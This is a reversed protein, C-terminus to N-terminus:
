ESEGVVQLGRLLIRAEPMESGDEDRVSLRDGTTPHYMGTALPYLGSQTNTPVTLRYRDVVIEGPRWSSTSHRGGRPEVDQQELIEGEQSLLHTFVKYDRQMRGRCRWYLKLSVEQGPQAVVPDLDYGLLEVTEGLKFSSPGRVLRELAVPQMVHISGLELTEGVSQGARADYVGIVVDYEGPPLDWPLPVLHREFVPMFSLPTDAQAVKLGQQNLIHIYATLERETSSLRRWYLVLDLPDGATRDRGRAFHGHTLVVDDGFTADLCLFDDTLPRTTTAGPQQLEVIQATEVTKSVGRFSVDLTAPWNSPSSLPLPLVTTGSGLVMPLQGHVEGPTVEDAQTHWEFRLQYSSTQQSVWAQDQPLDLLVYAYYSRDSQATHPLYLRVGPEVSPDSPLGYVATEGHHGLESLGDSRRQLGLRTHILEDSSLEDQHILLYRVGLGRLYAISEHSPFHLGYELSEWFLPPYFGSYGMTLRQWHYVSFYQRRSLRPISVEDATIHPSEATPFEFIVSDSRQGELWRYVPPVQSGVEIPVLPLPVAIYDLILGAAVLGYCIWRWHRSSSGLAAAGFGALVALSLMVLLSIRAPVRIASIFPVYRYVMAYPLGELLPPQDRTLHLHPGLSFVLSILGLALYFSMGRWNRQGKLLGLVALTLCAFGPFLTHEPSEQVPKLAQLRGSLSGPHASIYDRLAAGNQGELQRTGVVESAQSYPLYLLGIALGILVTASGLRTWLSRDKLLNQSTLLRYLVYLVVAGSLFIGLYITAWAQAIFCVSFCALDQYRRGGFFRELYYLALPIWWSTLLQIHSIQGLRYHAFAFVFGGVIGGFSSGTLSEILVYACLGGLAFSLLTLVNHALVPNETLWIWPAALLATTLLNESYALTNQYPYFSNADFLHLPQTELAHIDWAMIWTNLLPDGYNFVTDSLRFALPYTMVVSLLLYFGFVAVRHRWLRRWLFPKRDLDHTQRM